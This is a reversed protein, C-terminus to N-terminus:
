TTPQKAIRAKLEELADEIKQGRSPQSPASADKADVVAAPANARAAHPGVAEWGSSSQPLPEVASLVDLMERDSGFLAERLSLGRADVGGRDALKRDLAAALQLVGMVDDVVRDKRLADFLPSSAVGPLLSVSVRCLAALLLEDWSPAGFFADAAAISQAFADTGSALWADVAHRECVTRVRARSAEDHPALLVLAAEHTKLALQVVIREIDGDFSPRADVVVVMKGAVGRLAKEAERAAAPAGALKAVVVPVDRAAHKKLAARVPDRLAEHPVVIADYRSLTRTSSSSSPELVLATHARAPATRADPSQATGDLDPLWLAVDARPAGDFPAGKMQQRVQVGHVAFADAVRAVLAEVTPSAPLVIRMRTIPRAM